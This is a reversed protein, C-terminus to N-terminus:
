EESEPWEPHADQDAWVRLAQMGGSDRIPEVKEIQYTEGEYTIFVTDLLVGYLTSPFIFKTLNKHEGPTSAMFMLREATSPHNVIAKSPAGDPLTVPQGEQEIYDDYDSAM